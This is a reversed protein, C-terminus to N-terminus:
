PGVLDDKKPYIVGVVMYSPFRYHSGVVFYVRGNKTIDHLMKQKVKQDVEAEDKYKGIKRYQECHRYLEVAEWDECLTEHVIGGIDDKFRYRYKYKPIELKVAKEGFLNEQSGRKVLKEYHPNDTQVFDLIERPEVVGLSRTKPGLKELEEICTVREKLLREIDKFNAEEGPKLTNFKIKRSEPRHDSPKNEQLEYEIWSKKKFNVGSTKWFLEWPLPYIRRWEGSETIGAVCVLEQYKSSSEPAAKALVLLREKM